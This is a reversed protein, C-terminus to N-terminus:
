VRRSCLPCTRSQKILWQDICESHFRHGCPLLRLLEGGEYGALCVACSLGSDGGHAKLVADVLESKEVAAGSHLLRRTERTASGGAFAMRMEAVRQLRRLEEKLRSASWRKLEEKSTFSETPLCRVEAATARERPQGGPARARPLALAEALLDALRRAADELWGAVRRVWRRTAPGVLGPFRSALAWVFAFLVFVAFALGVASAFLTSAWARRAQLPEPAHRRATRSGPREQYLLDAERSWDHPDAWEDFQGNFLLSVLFIGVSAALAWPGGGVWIFFVMRPPQGRCGPPM